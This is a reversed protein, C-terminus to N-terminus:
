GSEIKVINALEHTPLLKVLITALWSKTPCVQTCLSLGFVGIDCIFLSRHYIHSGHVIVLAIPIKTKDSM